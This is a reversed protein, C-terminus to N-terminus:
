TFMVLISYTNEERSFIRFTAQEDHQFAKTMNSHASVRNQGYHTQPAGSLGVHDVGKLNAEGAQNM